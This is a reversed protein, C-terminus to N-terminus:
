ALDPAVRHGHKRETAIVHAVVEPVPDFHLSREARSRPDEMHVPEAFILVSLKEPRSEALIHSHELPDHVTRMSAGQALFCRNAPVWLVLVVFPRPEVKRVFFEIPQLFPFARCPSAFKHSM